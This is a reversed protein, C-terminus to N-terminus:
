YGGGGDKLLRARSILDEIADKITRYDANAAEGRGIFVMDWGPEIQTLRLGERLLRKVRNRVVAGGIRKGVSFGYRNLDLGNPVVKMVLLGNSWARGQRYVAQFDREGRLREERRMM